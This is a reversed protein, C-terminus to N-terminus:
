KGCHLTPGTRQLAAHGHQANNLLSTLRGGAGSFQHPQNLSVTAPDGSLSRCMELLSNTTIPAESPCLIYTRRKLRWTQLDGLYGQAPYVTTAPYLPHRHGGGSGHQYLLAEHHGTNILPRTSTTTHPAPGPQPSGAPSTLPHGLSTCARM